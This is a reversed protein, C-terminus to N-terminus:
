SGAAEREWHGVAGPRLLAARWRRPAGGDLLPHECWADLSSYQETVVVTAVGAGHRRVLTARYEAAVVDWAARTDPGQLEARQGSPLEFFARTALKGDQSFFRRAQSLAWTEFEEAASM